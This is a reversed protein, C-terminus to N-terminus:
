EKIGICEGKEIEEGKEERRKVVMLCYDTNEYRLNMDSASAKEGKFFVKGWGKIITRARFL